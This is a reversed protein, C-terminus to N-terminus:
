GVRTNGVLKFPFKAIYRLKPPVVWKAIQITGFWGTGAAALLPVAVGFIKLSSWCDDWSRILFCSVVGVILALGGIILGFFLMAFLVKAVVAELWRKATLNKACSGCFCHHTKFDIYDYGGHMHGSALVGLVAWHMTRKSHFLGRWKLELVQPSWRDGCNDCEQTRPWPYRESMHRGYGLFMSSTDPFFPKAPKFSLPDDFATDLINVVGPKSSAM